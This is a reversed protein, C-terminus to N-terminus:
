HNKVFVYLVPISCRFLGTSTCEMRISFGSHCGSHFQCTHTTTSKPSLSLLFNLSLSQYRKIGHSFALSPLISMTPKWENFLYIYTVFYMALRTSMKSLMSINESFLYICNWENFRTSKSFKAYSRHDSMKQLV